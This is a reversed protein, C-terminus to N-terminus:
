PRQDWTILRDYLGRWAAVQDPMIGVAQRFEAFEEVYRAHHDPLGGDWYDLVREWWSARKTWDYTEQPEAISKWYREKQDLRTPSSIMFAAGYGSSLSGVHFWPAGDHFERWAKDSRYPAESHIRLGRKRLAWAAQTFTDFGEDQICTYDIEPIYDGARLTIPDLHCDPLDRKRIFLFCPFLAHGTEGTITVPAPGFLEKVRAVLNDTANGRVTGVVDVAGSDILDFRNAIVGPHRVFADDELFVILDDPQTYAALNSMVEGHTQRTPQSSLVVNPLTAALDRLYGLVDTDPQGTVHVYLRDVEGAWVRAYHRLWYALLFPDAGAPLLAIRSM